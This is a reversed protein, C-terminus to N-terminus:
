PMESAPKTSKEAARQRRGAPAPCLPSLLPRPGGLFRCCHHPRRGGQRVERVSTTPKNYEISAFGIEDNLVSCIVALLRPQCLPSPRRLGLPRSRLAACCPSRRPGGAARIATTLRWLCRPASSPRTCVGLPAAGAPAARVSGQCLRASWGAVRCMRRSADLRALGGASGLSPSQRQGAERAGDRRETTTLLTLCRQAAHASGLGRQLAVEPACSAAQKGPARGPERACHAPSIALLYLACPERWTGWGGGGGGGCGQM